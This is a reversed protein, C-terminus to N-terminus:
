PTCAGYQSAVFGLDAVNIVGDGNSDLPRYEPSLTGFLSAITGLDAPNVTQDHNVSAVERGDRCGDADTNVALPNSLWYRVEVGDRVGDGDSDPNAPNTSYVAECADPLRDNDTDLGSLNSVASLPNTGCAIETGDNTRDGDTDWIFPSLGLGTETGNPVGDGDIDNDCADGEFDESPNTFDDYIPYPKPLPLPEGNLNEQLPNNVTPCNDLVDELNDGDDDNKEFDWVTTGATTGFTFSDINETYGDAYPEGVRLGVHADTVRIRIGPYDTLIQAWTKLTTGPQGTVPWTPGSYSWLALGSNIADWEQWTNQLVTGNNAPVYALRRQWTDSGDFDVNFNLYASRSASGGNGASPNYTRFRMATINALPTGAFQYSALNRRQTGSVSIRASGTGYFPSGPGTVFTGLAPNVTDNEDNYFVWGQAAMTAATVEQIAWPLCIGDLDSSTLWPITTLAGSLASPGTIAGYWNCTADTLPAGVNRIQLDTNATIGNRNITASSPAADGRDFYPTNQTNIVNGSQIQIGINNGSVTNKTVVHGTGEVLIGFGDGTSGVPKRTFGSVTNNRVVVGTPQDGNYLLDPFRRFVAIGAYDRADTAAVNRSVTNDEVVVSGAGSNAGNGTPMKVEIGFRGNNTVTNDAILNALPGEAGLAGIGSDGNGTVTNGTITLGTVSGDSVDIGVLGNSNWTGDTISLDTKVGNILWIGRGGFGIGNSNSTVRTFDFNTIGFAQVWIGHLCNSSTTVDQVTVNSLPGTPIGIGLNYGSIGLDQITAGSASSGVSIGNGGCATGSLLTLAQGAGKLTIDSNITVNEGYTGAKALVTDGALAHDVEGQITGGIRRVNTFVDYAYSRVDFPVETVLAVSGRDYTNDNWYSEWDFQSNDYTGRARIYQTSNSFSNGTIIAGGVPNVFWPVGGSGNFSIANFGNNVMDFTNDLIERGSVPGTNGAGSSIDVSTGDDFLNDLVHYSQVVTGAPSFDNIYISGGGGPISTNAYQLTFDDAVVEITKNDGSVNPGVTVGQITTSDAEVFIGSTGFNNTADTNITALTAAPDTIPVDGATVGMLTIGPKASGFFLGFQYTGAISTPSSGPASENYVGPLVRVTGGASVQNIAAQITKKASVAANGGFSDNGNVADVYCVTTCPTEPEFDYTTDDGSIGVVLNDAYGSFGPWGSGAKLLVAGQTAHVGIDPYTTLLTSIPCPASIPCPLPGTQQVDGVYPARTPNSPQATQWWNGALADWNQWTNQPVGAPFTNYPEFIIRGQFGTYSDTSDYDVNLQLAIALNDGADPSARYTDYSLTTIDGLPTATMPRAFVWGAAATNTRLWASGTGIPPTAPGSVFSALGDAPGTEPGGVWGNLTSPKVVVTTSADAPSGDFYGTTMLAAVVAVLAGLGLWRKTHGIFFQTM